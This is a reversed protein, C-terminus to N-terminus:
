CLVYKCRFITVLENHAYALTLLSLAENFRARSASNSSIVKNVICIGLAREPEPARMDGGAVLPRNNVIYFYEVVTICHFGDILVSRFQPCRELCSAKEWGLYLVVRAHM